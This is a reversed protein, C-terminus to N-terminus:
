SVAVTVAVTVTACGAVFSPTPARLIFFPYLYLSLFSVFNISNLRCHVANSMTGGVFICSEGGVDFVCRAWRFLKVVVIFRLCCLFLHFFLWCLFVDAVGKPEQCLLLTGEKVSADYPSFVLCCFECFSVFGVFLSDADVFVVLERVVLNFPLLLGLIRCM